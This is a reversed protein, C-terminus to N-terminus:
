YYTRQPPGMKRWERDSEDGRLWDTSRAAGRNTRANFWEIPVRSADIRNRASSVDYDYWARDDANDAQRNGLAFDNSARYYGLANQGEGLARQSDIGYRQAGIREHELEANQESDDMHSRRSFERDFDDAVGEQAAKMLAAAYNGSGLMGSNTRGVAQMAADLRAKYGPMQDYNIGSAMLERLANGM